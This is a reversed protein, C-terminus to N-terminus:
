DLACCLLEMINGAVKSAQNKIIVLDAFLCTTLYVLLFATNVCDAALTGHDFSRIILREVSNNSESVPQLYGAIRGLEILGM